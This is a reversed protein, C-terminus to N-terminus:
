TPSSEGSNNNNVIGDESGAEPNLIPGGGGAAGAFPQNFPPGYCQPFYLEHKVIPTMRPSINNNNKNSSDVSLFNKAGLLDAAGSAVAAITNSLNAANVVTTNNNTNRRGKSSHPNLHNDIHKKVEPETAFRRRCNAMPCCFPRDGQLPLSFVGLKLRQPYHLKSLTM